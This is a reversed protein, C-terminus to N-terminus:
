RRRTAARVLGRAILILLAITGVILMVVPFLSLVVSTVTGGPPGSSPAPLQAILPVLLPAVALMVLAAAGAAVLRRLGRTM